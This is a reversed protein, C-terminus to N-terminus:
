ADKVLRVSAGYAKGYEDKSLMAAADYRFYRSNAYMSSYMTATWFYADYRVNYFDTSLREGAPFAAFGYSGDGNGSSWGTTSKLKIGAVGSGGVATALAEWESTTPVHWGEPLLTSKNDDLYKVANWNYLLGYRNGNVGYTSEDNQYYNARPESWSSEQGIPLGSFKYDLNEDIWLQNGIKVYHYWRDGILVSDIAPTEKKILWKDNASNKLVKGNLTYITSMIFNEKFNNLVM